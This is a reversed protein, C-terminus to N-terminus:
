SVIVEEVEETACRAPSPVTRKLLPDPVDAQAVPGDNSGRQQSLNRQMGGPLSLVLTREFSDLSGSLLLDYM